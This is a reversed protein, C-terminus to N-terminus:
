TVNAYPIAIPVRAMPQNMTNLAPNLLVCEQSPQPFHATEAEIRFSHMGEGRYGAMQGSTPSHLVLIGRERNIPITGPFEM